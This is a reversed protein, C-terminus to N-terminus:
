KFVKERQYCAFGRNHPGGSCICALPVALSLLWWFVLRGFWMNGCLTESDFETDTELLEMILDLIEDNKGSVMIESDELGCILM